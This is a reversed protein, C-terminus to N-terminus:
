CSSSPCANFSYYTSSAVCTKRQEEKSCEQRSSSTCSNFNSSYKCSACSGDSNKSSCWSYGSCFADGGSKHCCTCKSTTVTRYSTCWTEWKATYSTCTNLQKYNIECTTNATVNEFTASAISIGNSNLTTSSPSCGTIDKVYYSDNNSFSLTVNSNPLIRETGDITKSVDANNFTVDGVSTGTKVITFNLTGDDNPPTDNNSELSVRREITEFEGDEFTAKTLVNYSDGPTLNTFTYTGETSNYWTIGGDISYAYVINEESVEPDLQAEVTISNTSKTLRVSKLRFTCPIKEFYIRGDFVKGINNNPKTVDSQNYEYNIFNIKFIWDQEITEGSDAHIKFYNQTSSQPITITHNLTTVDYGSIDNARGMYGTENNAQTSPVTVYKVTGIDNSFENLSTDNIGINPTEVGLYPVTDNYRAQLILEPHDDDISYNFSNSEISANVTYCLDAGDTDNISSKFVVRGIVTNSEEDGKDISFNDLNAEIYLLGNVIFLQSTNTSTTVEEKITSGGTNQTNFYAYTAGIVSVFFTVIIVITLAKPIRYDNTM